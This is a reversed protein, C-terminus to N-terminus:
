MKVWRKNARGKGDSLVVVYMGSAYHAVPMELRQESGTTTISREEILRSFPDFVQVQLNRNATESNIVLNLVEHVPNAGSLGFRVGAIAAAEKTSVHICGDLMSRHIQLPSTSSDIMIGLQWLQTHVTTYHISADPGCKDIYYWEYSTRDFYQVFLQGVDNFISDVWVQDTRLRITNPRWEGRIGLMGYADYFTNRNGTKSHYGYAGIHIAKYSDTFTDLYNLPTVRLLQPDSYKFIKGDIWEGLLWLNNQDRLYYEERMVTDYFVWGLNADPFDDPVNLTWPLTQFWSVSTEVDPEWHQFDWVVDAGAAGEDSNQADMPQAYNGYIGAIPFFYSEYVPQSFAVSCFLLMAYITLITKM